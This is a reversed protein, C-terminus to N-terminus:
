KVEKYETTSSKRGPSKLQQTNSGGRLPVAIKLEPSASYLRRCRHREELAFDQQKCQSHHATDMYSLRQGAGPEGIRMIEEARRSYFWGMIPEVFSRVNVEVVIRQVPSASNLDRIM